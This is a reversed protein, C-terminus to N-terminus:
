CPGGIRCTAPSGGATRRGSRIARLSERPGRSRSWVAATRRSAGAVLRGSRDSQFLIRSGDPSWRPHRDRFGDNTLQRLNGGDKRVVFLDEQPLSAHFTVWQGDPSVDCSRVGRSGQTVPELRGAALTAPDLPARELNAKSENTAYLINRGDRSLSLLGSWESPATIAEPAGLVKGSAEDIPVRWLNMSGGRNSAFYLQSGDSSWAPSWNLYEDDTVQVAAGGEAPMTSLIRRSSGAPIGWFAIRRGHPSWAPQVADGETLLRRAGTAADVRWIQSRTKRARPDSVGETAVLIERGDPSWAPSFGFDTLRRVSEGTAGM